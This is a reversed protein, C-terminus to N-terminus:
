TGFVNLTQGYSGWSGFNVTYGFPVYTGNFYSINTLVVNNSADSITMNGPFGGTTTLLIDGGNVHYNTNDSPSNSLVAPGEMGITYFGSGISNEWNIIKGIPNLGQNDSVKATSNLFVTTSANEFHNNHIWTVSTPDNFTNTYIAYKSATSPAFDNGNITTSNATTYICYSPTPYNNSFYNDTFSNDQVGLNVITIYSSNDPGNNEFYNNQFLNNIAYLIYIAADGFNNQWLNSQWTVQDASRIYTAVKTNHDMICGQVLLNNDADYLYLGYVAGNFQSYVIQSDLTFNSFLGIQGGYTSVGEIRTTGTYTLNIATNGAYPLFGLNQITVGSALFSDNSGLVVVGYGTIVTSAAMGRPGFTNINYGAPSEGTLMMSRSVIVNAAFPYTGATLLVTGSLGSTALANVSDQVVVNPVSSSYAIVGYADKAYYFTRDTWITYTPAGPYPGPSLTFTEPDILTLSAYGITGLEDTVTVSILIQQCAKNLKFTVFQTNGLSTLSSSNFNSDFSSDYILQYAWQYRYSSTGNTSAHFTLSQGVSMTTAKPLIDVGMSNAIAEPNANSEPTAATNPKSSSQFTFFYGISAILFILIATELIVLTKPNM